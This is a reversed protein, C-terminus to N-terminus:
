FSATVPFFDWGAKFHVSRKKIEAKEYQANTHFIIKIDAIHRESWNM